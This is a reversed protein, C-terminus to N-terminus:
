FFFVVCVIKNNSLSCGGELSHLSNSSLLTIQRPQPQKLIFLSQTNQHHQQQQQQHHQLQLQKQLQQYHHKLHLQQQLNIESSTHAFPQTHACNGGGGMSSSSDVSFMQGTSDAFSSMSRIRNSDNHPPSAESITKMNGNNFSPLPPSLSFPSMPSVPVSSSSSTTSSLPSVPSPISLSFLPSNNTTIEQKQQQQQQQQYKQKQKMKFQKESMLIISPSSSASSTSNSTFSSSTGASSNASFFLNANNYSAKPTTPPPPPPSPASILRFKSNSSSGSTTEDHCQLM